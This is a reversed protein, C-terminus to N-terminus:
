PLRIGGSSAAYANGGRTLLTTGANLYGATRANRGRLRDLQAQFDLSRADGEGQARTLLANFESEGALSEQQMLATGAAPDIGSAALRARQSGQVREADRRQRTEQLRAIERQREAQSQHLAGQAKAQNAAAKGQAIASAAAVVAATVLAITTAAAM